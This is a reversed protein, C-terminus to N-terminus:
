SGWFLRQKGHWFKIGVRYTIKRNSTYRYERNIKSKIPLASWAYIEIRKGGHTLGATDEDDGNGLIGRIWADKLM